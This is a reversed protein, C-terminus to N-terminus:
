QYKQTINHWDKSVRRLLGKATQEREVEAEYLSHDMYGKVTDRILSDIVEPRLADLEWCENGFERMYAVHRSDTVKTPNPPPNYMQIQDMNLAIRKFEPNAGFINLREEIDRSMDRGSPDHDGLHIIVTDRSEGQEILRQAASWMETQSVYGRCSFHPVDLSSCAKSVVGILADKEVWVELYVPQTSWRNYRFSRACAEVIDSPSDWHSNARLYRTRDVIAEWDILGAMRADSVLNGINKYSRENNPIIDRAVLQYYLQRLTLEYGKSMYEAIIMNIRDILELSSSRFNIEQYKINM